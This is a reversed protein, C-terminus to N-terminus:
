WNEEGCIPIRVIAHRGNIEMEYELDLTYGIGSSNTYVIWFNYDIGNEEVIKNVIELDARNMMIKTM